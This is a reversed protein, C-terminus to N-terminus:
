WLSVLKYTTFYVAFAAMGGIIATLLNLKFAPRGFPLIKMWLYGVTVYLPYGPPHAVGFHQAAM